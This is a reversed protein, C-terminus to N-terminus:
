LRLAQRNMSLEKIDEQPKSKSKYLYLLFDM